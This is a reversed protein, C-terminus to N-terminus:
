ISIRKFKRKLQAIFNAFIFRHAKVDILTTNDPGESITHLGENFDWHRSPTITNIVRDVYETKNLKIIELVAVGAGYHPVGIQVPLLLKGDITYPMGAPRSAAIDTRVPNLLHEHYPGEPKEAWYIFLCSDPFHDNRHTFMWYLGNFFVVSADICPVGSLLTMSSKDRLNYAKLQGSESAEPLIYHNNNIRLPFPYSLHHELELVTKHTQANVIVGKGTKYDYAECLVSIGENTFPDAYYQFPEPASLWKPAKKIGNVIVSSVPEHVIGIKWTEALFLQRYHFAIKNNLLKTLFRLMTFNGPYTRILNAARKKQVARIQGNVALERIADAIWSSTGTLLNNLNESYSHKILRFWGERIVIGDDLKETLRQLIAGQKSENLMYEWFGGPGGRIVQPDCHHYSWVGHKAINLIEGRLINFGFRIIIDPQHYKIEQLSEDPFYQSYKGKLIPKVRISPVSSLIKNVDTSICAPVKGYKNRFRNWLFRSWNYGAIRKPLNHKVPLDTDNLITLVFEAYGESEIQRLADAM